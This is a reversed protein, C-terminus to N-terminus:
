FPLEDTFPFPVFVSINGSVFDSIDGLTVGLLMTDIIVFSRGRSGVELREAREEVNGGDKIPIYLLEIDFSGEQM